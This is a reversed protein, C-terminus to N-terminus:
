IVHKIKGHNGLQCGSPAAARGAIRQTSQASAALAGTVVCALLLACLVSLKRRLRM